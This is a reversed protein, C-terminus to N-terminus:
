KAHMASRHEKINNETIGLEKPVIFMLIHCQMVAHIHTQM